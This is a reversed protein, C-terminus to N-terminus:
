YVTYGEEPGDDIIPEKGSKDHPVGLYVTAVTSNGSSDVVEFTVGYIRGNNTGQRESRVMFRSTGLLVIDDLTNGDGRGEANEPEDSYISLITGVEDIDLEGDVDDGVSLVCDSLNFTRYKHNPPWLEMMEGVTVAPPIADGAESIAVDDLTATTRIGDTVDHTMEFKLMIDQGAWGSVDVNCTTHHIVHHTWSFEDGESENVIYDPAYYEVDTSSIRYVRESETFGPGYFVTATFVDTEGTSMRNYVEATIDFSLEDAQAPLAFTQCLVSADINGGGPSPYATLFAFSDQFSWTPDLPFDGPNLFVCAQEYWLCGDADTPAVDWSSFDADFTGNALPEGPGALVSMPALLVSCVLIIGLMRDEM